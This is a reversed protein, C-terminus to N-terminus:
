TTPPRRSSSSGASGSRAPHRTKRPPAVAEDVRVSGRDAQTNSSTDPKRPLRGLVRRIRDTRARRVGPDGHDRASRTGPATEHRHQVTATPPSGEGQGKWPPVRLMAAPPTRPRRISLYRRRPSSADAVTPGPRPGGQRTCGRSPCRRPPPAPRRGGRRAPGLGVVTAGPQDPTVLAEDAVHVPGHSLDAAHDPRRGRAGLEVDFLLALEDDDVVARRRRQRHDVAARELDDVRRPAPHRGGRQPRRAPLRTSPSGAPPARSVGACSVSSDEISPM